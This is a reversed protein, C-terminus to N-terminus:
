SKGGERPTRYRWFDYGSGDEYKRARLLKGLRVTAEAHADNDRCCSCGESAIYDAVARRLEQREARTVPEGRTTAVSAGGRYPRGFAGVDGHTGQLVRM